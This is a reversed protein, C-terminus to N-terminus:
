VVCIRLDELHRVVVPRQAPQEPALRSTVAESTVYDFACDECEVDVAGREVDAVVADVHLREVPLVTRSTVRSSTAAPIVRM